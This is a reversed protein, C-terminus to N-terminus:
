LEQILIEKLHILSIMHTLMLNSTNMMIIMMMTMEPDDDGHDDDHDDDGHDDDGHDDDGHDDDGHDDHDEYGLWFDYNGWDSDYSHLTENKSMGVNFILFEGALMM